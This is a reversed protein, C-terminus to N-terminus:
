RRAGLAEAAAATSTPTRVAGSARAFPVDVADGVVDGVVGFVLDDEVTVDTVERRVRSTGDVGFDIAVSPAFRRDCTALLWAVRM